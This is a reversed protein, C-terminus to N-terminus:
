TARMSSNLAHSGLRRFGGDASGESVEDRRGLFQQFFRATPAHEDQHIIFVALILAIQHDGRLERGRIRDIEHRTIRAAQDAKGHRTRPHILQAQRQHRLGIARPM